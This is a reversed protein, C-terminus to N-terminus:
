GHTEGRAPVSEYRVRGGNSVPGGTPSDALDEGIGNCSAVFVLIMVLTLLSKTIWFENARRRYCRAVPGTGVDIIDDCDCTRADCGFDEVIFLTGCMDIGVYGEPCERDLHKDSSTDVHSVRGINETGSVASSLNFSPNRGLFKAAATWTLAARLKASLSRMGWQKADYEDFGDAAHSTSGCDRKYPDCRHGRHLVKAREHIRAYADSGEWRRSEMSSTNIHSALGDSSTDSSSGPAVPSSTRGLFKMVVFRIPVERLEASLLRRRRACRQGFGGTGDVIDNCDCRSPDCRRGSLTVRVCLDIRVYGDICEWLRRRVRQKICREGTGDISGVIDGCECKSSDCRVDRASSQVGCQTIRAYGDPCTWLSRQISALNSSARASSGLLCLSMGAFMILRVM